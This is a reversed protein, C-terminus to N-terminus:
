TGPIEPLNYVPECKSSLAKGDFIKPSQQTSGMCGRVTLLKEKTILKEQSKMVSWLLMGRSMAFLIRGHLESSFQVRKSNLGVMKVKGSVEIDACGIEDSGCSYVGKLISVIELKLPIGSGQSVWEKDLAWSEGVKVQTKPLSLPPVYFISNKPYQGADLVEASLTLRSKLEEDEEPFGLTNLNVGGDKKLIIVKQSFSNGDLNLATIEELASFEVIEDREKLIQQDQFIEIHSHSYYDVVTKAGTKPSLKLSYSSEAGGIPVLTARKLGFTGCGAFLTLCSVLVLVTVLFRNLNCM